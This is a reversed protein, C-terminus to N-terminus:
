EHPCGARRHGRVCRQKRRRGALILLENPQCLMINAKLFIIWLLFALSGVGIAIGILQAKDM